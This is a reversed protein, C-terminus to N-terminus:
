RDHKTRTTVIRFEARRDQLSVPGRSFFGEGVFGGATAGPPCAFIASPTHHNLADNAALRQQIPVFQREPDRQFAIFFLGGAAM